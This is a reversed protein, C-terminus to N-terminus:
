DEEEIVKEALGQDILAQGKVKHPNIEQGEKYFQTYQLIRVKLRDNYRIKTGAAGHEALMAKADFEGTFDHKKKAM